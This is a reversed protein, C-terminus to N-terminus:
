PILDNRGQRGAAMDDRGILQAMAAAGFRRRQGVPRHSRVHQERPDVAEGPRRENSTTVAHTTVDQGPECSPPGVGKRMDEQDIRHDHRWFMIDASGIRGYRVGGFMGDRPPAAAPIAPLRHVRMKRRTRGVRMPLGFREGVIATEAQEGSRVAVAPIKGTRGREFRGDILIGQAGIRM